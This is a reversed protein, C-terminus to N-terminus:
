FQIVLFNDPIVEPEIVKNHQCLGLILSNIKFRNLFTISFLECYSLFTIKVKNAYYSCLRAVVTASSLGVVSTLTVVISIKVVVGTAVVISGYTVSTSVTTIVSTVVFTSPLILIM